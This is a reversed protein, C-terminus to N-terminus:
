ETYGHMRTHAHTHTCMGFTHIQVQMGTHAVLWVESTLTPM